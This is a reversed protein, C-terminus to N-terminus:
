LIIYEALENVTNYTKLSLFFTALIIICIIIFCFFILMDYKNQKQWLSISNSNKLSESKIVVKPNTTKTFISVNSEPHNSHKKETVVTSVWIKQSAKKTTSTKKQKKTWSTAEAKM